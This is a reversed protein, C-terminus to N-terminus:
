VNEGFEGDQLGFFGLYSCYNRSASDRSSHGISACPYSNPNSKKCDDALKSPISLKCNFSGVSGPLQLDTLDHLNM